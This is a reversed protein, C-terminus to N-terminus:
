LAALSEQGPKRSCKGLATNLEHSGPVGPLVVALGAVPIAPVGVEQSSTSARSPSALPLCLGTWRMTMM